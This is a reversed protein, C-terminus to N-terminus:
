VYNEKLPVLGALFSPTKRALRQRQGTPYIRAEAEACTSWGPTSGLDTLRRFGKQGM